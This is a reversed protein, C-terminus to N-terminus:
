QVQITMDPDSTPNAVFTTSVVQLFENCANRCVSEHNFGVRGIEQWPVEIGFWFCLAVFGHVQWVDGAFNGPAGVFGKFLQRSLRGFCRFCKKSQRGCGFDVSLIRM